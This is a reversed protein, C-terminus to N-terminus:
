TNDGFNELYSIASELVQISDKFKGLGHNCATCLIGRVNGTEHNHDVCTNKADKFKLGCIACCNDQDLVMRHKQDPTIGYNKKYHTRASIASMKEPNDKRWQRNYRQCIEPNAQKWLRKGENICSKCQRRYGDASTDRKSFDELPKEKQCKSCMRM